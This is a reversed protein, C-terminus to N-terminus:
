PSHIRCHLMFRRIHILMKAGQLVDIDNHGADVYLPPFLSRVPVSAQVEYANRIHIVTDQLSHIVFVSQDVSRVDKVVPCFVSDLLGFVGM